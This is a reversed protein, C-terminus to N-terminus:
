QVVPTPKILAAPIVQEHRMFLYDHLSSGLRRAAPTIALKAMVGAKM